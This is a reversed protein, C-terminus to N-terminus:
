KKQINQIINCENETSVVGNRELDCLVTHFYYFNQFSFLLMFATVPGVEVPFSNEYKIVQEIIKKIQLHEKYTNYLDSVTDMITNHDYEELNFVDLLEKRYKTDQEQTDEVDLYTTKISYNYM